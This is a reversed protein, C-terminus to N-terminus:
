PWHHHSLGSGVHQSSHHSRGPSLGYVASRQSGAACQRRYYYHRLRANRYRLQRVSNEGLFINSGYDCRFPPEIEIKQGFRGFLEGLIRCREANEDETTANFARTLARARRRMESLEAGSADYLEGALMKERETM